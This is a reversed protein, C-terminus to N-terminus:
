DLTEDTTSDTKEEANGEKSNLERLRQEEELKAKLDSPVDDWVTRDYIRVDSGLLRKSSRRRKQGPPVWGYVPASRTRTRKFCKPCQCNYETYKDTLGGHEVKYYSDTQVDLRCHECTYDIM